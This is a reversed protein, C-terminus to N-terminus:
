WAASPSWLPGMNGMRALQVQHLDRLLFTHSSRIACDKLWLPNGSDFPLVIFPFGAKRATNYNVLLGYLVYLVTGLSLSLPVLVFPLFPM